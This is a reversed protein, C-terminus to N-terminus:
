VFRVGREEYVSTQDEVGQLAIGLGMIAAVIGDITRKDGHKPKVPRLNKNADSKVNVHGAQWNLVPNDPHELGGSIVLREFVATPEAFNTITQGFRVREVGTENEIEETLAEANYPDYGFGLINFKESLEIFVRKVEKYDVVDRSAGDVNIFGADAWYQYPNNGSTNYAREHPLFFYPLM